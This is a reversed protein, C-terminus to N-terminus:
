NGKSYPKALKLMKLNDLLGISKIYDLFDKPLPSPGVWVSKQIRTYNFGKLQYRFWDRESRKNFPFDCIVILDKPTTLSFNYNFHKYDSYKRLFKGSNEVVKKNNIRKDKLFRM